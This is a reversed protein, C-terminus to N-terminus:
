HLDGKRWNARALVISSYSTVTSLWFLGDKAVITFHAISSQKLPNIHETCLYHTLLLIICENGHIVIERHRWWISVNETNSAMQAPFEGIVRSFWQHSEAFVKERSETVRSFRQCIVEGTVLITIWPLGRMIRYIVVVKQLMTVWSFWFMVPEKHPFFRRPSSSEGWLPCHHLKLSTYSIHSQKYKTRWMVMHYRNLVFSVVGIREFSDLWISIDSLINDSNDDNNSNKDNIM